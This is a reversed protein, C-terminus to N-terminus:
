RPTSSSQHHFGHTAENELLEKAFAKFETPHAVMCAHLTVFPPVCTANRDTEPSRMFCVLAADFAAGCSSNRLPAVCPCELAAAVAQEPTKGDGNATAEAIADAVGALSVGGGGGGDGGMHSLTDRPAVLSSAFEHHAHTHAIRSLPAAIHYGCRAGELAGAIPTRM